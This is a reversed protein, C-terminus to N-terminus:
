NGGETFEKDCSTCLQGAGEIYGMRKDIHDTKKYVTKEGCKVCLDFEERWENTTEDEFPSMPARPAYRPMTPRGMSKINFNDKSSFKNVKVESM